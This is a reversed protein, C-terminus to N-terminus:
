SLPIDCQETANGLATVDAEQGEKLVVTYALYWPALPGPLLLATPFPYGSELEQLWM